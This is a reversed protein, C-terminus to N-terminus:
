RRNGMKKREELFIVGKQKVKQFMRAVIEELHVEAEDWRFNEGGAREEGRVWASLFQDENIKRWVIGRGELAAPILEGGMGAAIKETVM